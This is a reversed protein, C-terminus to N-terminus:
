RTSRSSRRTPRSSPAPLAGADDQRGEEALRRDPRARLGLQQAQFPQLGVGPDIFAKHIKEPTKAAVEEIEMGGEASVMLVLRQTSRDVVLGLYLERDIALGKKSWCGRRGAPRGPRDPLHGADQRAARTAITEAEDASKALKVGGGQRPRRRPDAGQRRGRPRRAAQRDRRGEQPTFPWKAARSRCATRALIAKAQYEHIKM